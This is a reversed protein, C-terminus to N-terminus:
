ARQVRGQEAPQEATGNLATAIRRGRELYADARDLELMEGLVENYFYPVFANRAGGGSFTLESFYTRNGQQLFDVRVHLFDESLRKAEAVMREFDAPRPPREASEPHGNWHFDVPGWNLDFLAHRFRGPTRESIFLVFVPQGHLCYFKYEKITEVPGVDEEALWRKPIGRYHMEGLIRWHDWDGLRRLQSALARRRVPEAEDIFHHQGCGFTSKLVFRRPLRAAAFAEGGSFVGYLEPAPIEAGKYRLYSRVAAKDAALTMLPNPHNLFQWRVKENVWTPSEFDPMHDNRVAYHYTVAERDSRFTRDYAEAQVPRSLTGLGHRLRAVRWAWRHRHDIEKLYADRDLDIRPM